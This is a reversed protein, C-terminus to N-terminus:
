EKIYDTAFLPHNHPKSGLLLNDDTFTVATNYSACQMLVELM